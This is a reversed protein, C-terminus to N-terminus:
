YRDIRAAGPGPKDWVAHGERDLERVGNRDVILTNGNSLRRADYPYTLGDQKWVVEGSADLEVVQKAGNQSVLTHGNDLRQVSYPRSMNDLEWVIEGDADLEIVKSSTYLAVLTHGNDLRRADRPAADLKKQWAISKDPRIEVLERTSYCAVLTNGTPLRQCSYPSGPLVDSRWIENGDPDFEIIVRTSYSAVLRHGNPLGDVGRPTGVAQTWVIEGSADYEVVRNNAYYAILTRGLLVETDRLPFHLEATEGHAALWERWQAASAARREPDEYGVFGFQEGTLMRLADASDSRVHLDDSDLLDALVPLAARGGHNGLARAAALRVRDDDHQLLPLLADDSKEAAVRELTTAAAAVVRPDDRTLTRTLLEVDGPEGGATASLARRAAALLHEDACFPIAELVPETLGAIEREEIARFVASLLRAMRRAGIKRVQEARWRIEADDGKIARELLEPSHIPRRLLERMAAERRFFDDDGLQALLETLKQREDPGPHLSRLYAALSDTTPELGSEALVALTPDPRPGHAQPEQGAALLCLWTTAHLIADCPM